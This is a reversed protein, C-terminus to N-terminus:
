PRVVVPLANGFETPAEFGLRPASLDAAAEGKVRMLEGRGSPRDDTPKTTPFLAAVLLRADEHM